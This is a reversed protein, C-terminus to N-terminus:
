MYERLKMWLDGLMNKGVIKIEGDVVIGKGEWLRYKLKDESCRLAPHVLIKGKSKQLEDRVALYNEFKYKCIEEQVCVSLTNWLELENSTLILSRGMKKVVNGDKTCVDILFRKGYEILHQKRVDDSCLQGIRIFKEGHFCSEGSDYQRVENNHSIIINSKWFNSLCKAEEKKFFFNLVGFKLISADTM